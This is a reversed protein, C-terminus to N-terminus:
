DIEELRSEPQAAIDISEEDQDKKDENNEVNEEDDVEGISLGLQVMRYIRGVFQGPRSLSFGSHLLASEFLLNMLDRTPKDDDCKGAVARQKLEKIIAHYPNLELTKRVSLMPSTTNDRLAQAKMIREMNATWGYEDTVIACPTDEMRHSLKVQVVKDDLLSKYKRCLVDFEKDLLEREKKEEETEELAGDKSCNVFTKGQYENLQQMMYEDMPDTMYIVEYGRKKLKETFPLGEIAEITEGTIYYLKTQGEKMRDVYEKLSIQKDGKTRSTTFRLLNTLKDRNTRDQHIGLKINKSYTDYFAKYDEARDPDNALDTMLELMKKVINKHIVKIIKNQQLMERSINLPLDDSDVVGRIFTMWEPILDECNDMIFVRRVFLKINDPKQQARNFMSFPPRKPIYLLARFELQGEVKFHKWTIADEWDHTISKYFANYEDKTIDDPNRMWIPKQKNILEWELRKETRTKKPPKDAADDDIEEVEGEKDKGDENDINDDNDDNDEVVEERMVQLHIPFNIFENHKKILERLRHEELFELQDEKLHLLIRTGRTIGQTLPHEADLKTITFSGGARSEWLHWSEDNNNKSVVDVKDAVLYASYFGVGFQGILSLDNKGSSLAEMFTKTGSRAITGLNQIMDDKTLGVGTDEICLVKGDKDSKIRIEMKPESAMVSADTLSAYRIKDLADSANSILERLFIDKNSYFTNIILSLLQNIEAQFAFTEPEM